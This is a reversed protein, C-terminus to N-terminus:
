SRARADSVLGSGYAPHDAIGANHASSITALINDGDLHRSFPIIAAGVHEDALHRFNDVLVLCSLGPVPRTRVLIIAGAAKACGIVFGPFRAAEQDFERSTSPAEELRRSPPPQVSSSAAHKAEGAGAHATAARCCRGNGCC